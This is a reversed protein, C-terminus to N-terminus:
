KMYQTKRKELARQLILRNVVMKEDNQM